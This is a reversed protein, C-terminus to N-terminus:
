AAELPLRGIDRDMGLFNEAYALFQILYQGVMGALRDFFNALIGVPIIEETRLIRDFVAQDVLNQRRSQFSHRLRQLLSM